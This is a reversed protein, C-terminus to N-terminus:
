TGESVSYKTVTKRLMICQLIAFCETIVVCCEM